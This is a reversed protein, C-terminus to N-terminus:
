PVDRRALINEVVAALPSLRLDLISGDLEAHGAIMEAVVILQAPAGLRKNFAGIAEIRHRISQRAAEPNQGGPTGLRRRSRAM